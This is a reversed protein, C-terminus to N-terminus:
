SGSKKRRSRTRVGANRIAQKQQDTAEGSKLIGRLTDRAAQAEEGLEKRQRNIEKLREVQSEVTWAM